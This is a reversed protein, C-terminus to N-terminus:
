LKPELSDGARDQFGFGINWCDLRGSEWCVPRRGM